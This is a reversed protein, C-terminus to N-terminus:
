MAAETVEGSDAEDAPYYRGEKRIVRGNDLLKPLASYVNARTLKLPADKPIASHIELPKLGHNAKITDFVVGVKTPPQVRAKKPSKYEVEIRPFQLVSPQECIYPNESGRTEVELTREYSALDQALTNMREMAKFTERKAVELAARTEEVRGLLYARIEDNM